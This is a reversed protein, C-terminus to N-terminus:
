PAQHDNGSQESIKLIQFIFARVELKRGSFRFDLSRHYGPIWRLEKSLTFVFMKNMKLNLLDDQNARSHAPLFV